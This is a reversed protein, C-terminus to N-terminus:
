TDIADYSCTVCMYAYHVWMNSSWDGFILTYSAASCEVHGLYATIDSLSVRIYILYLHLFWSVRIYILYLHIYILYVFFTTFQISARGELLM